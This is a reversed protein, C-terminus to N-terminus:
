TRRRGTKTEDNMLNTMTWEENRRLNAKYDHKQKTTTIKMEDVVIDSARRYGM